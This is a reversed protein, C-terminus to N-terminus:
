HQSICAVQAAYADFCEMPFGAACTDLHDLICFPVEGGICRYYLEDDASHSYPLIQLVVQCLPGEAPWGCQCCAEFAVTHAGGGGDNAVNSCDRASTSTAANVGGTTVGAAGAVLGIGTGSGNPGIGAGGFGAQRAGSQAAASPDSSVGGSDTPNSSGDRVRSRSDDLGTAAGCSTEVFLLIIFWAVKNVLPLTGGTIECSVQWM